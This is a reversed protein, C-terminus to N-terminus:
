FVAGRGLNPNKDTNKKYQIQNNCNQCVLMIYPYSDRNPQLLAIKHNYFCHPCIDLGNIEDRYIVAGTELRIQTYDDIRLQFSELLQIKTKATNLEDIVNQGDLQAQMLIGQLEIILQQMEIKMANIEATSKIENASKLLETMGKIAGMASTISTFM